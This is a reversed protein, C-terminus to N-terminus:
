RRARPHIGWKLADLGEKANPIITGAPCFYDNWLAAFQPSRDAIGIPKWESVRAKSWSKDLQGFAYTRRERTFCRLGEFTVNEAGSASRALLAFRVIGDSGVSLSDADIFFEFNSPTVRFKLLKDPSPYKPLQLDLEQWAKANPDEEYYFPKAPQSQAAFSILAFALALWRM